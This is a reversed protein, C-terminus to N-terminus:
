RHHLYSPYAVRLGAIFRQMQAETVHIGSVEVYTGPQDEWVAVISGEAPAFGSITVEHRGVDVPHSTGKIGLPCGATIYTFSQSQDMSSVTRAPTAHCRDPVGVFFSIIPPPATDPPHTGPPTWTPVLRLVPVLASKTTQTGGWALGLGLGLGTVLGLVGLLLWPVLRRM